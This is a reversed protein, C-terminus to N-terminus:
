GDSLKSYLYLWGAALLFALTFSVFYVFSLFVTTLLVRPFRVSGHRWQSYAFVYYLFSAVGYVLALLHFIPGPVFFLLLSNFLLQYAFLQGILYANAYLHEGFSYTGKISRVWTLLGAIPFQLLFLTNMLASPDEWATRLFGPITPDAENQGGMASFMDEDVLLSLVIVLGGMLLAYDVPNYYPKREGQLYNRITRGPRVALDRFTHLLRNSEFGVFMEFFQDVVFRLTIREPKMEEGCHMCYEGAGSKGCSPCDATPTAIGEEM